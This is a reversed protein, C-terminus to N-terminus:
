IIYDILNSDPSTPKQYKNSVRFSNSIVLIRKQDIQNKKIGSEDLESSELESLEDSSSSEDLSTESEDVSFSSSLFNFFFSSVVNTTM